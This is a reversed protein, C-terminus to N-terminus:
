NITLGETLLWALKIFEKLIVILNTTNTIGNILEIIM